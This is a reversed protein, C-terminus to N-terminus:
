LSIISHFYMYVVYPLANSVDSTININFKKSTLDLFEGFSTGIGYSQNAKLMQLSANNHGTDRFSTLFRELVEVRDRIVYNVFQNSSDNWLFQLERVNPLQNMSVNNYTATNERSQEQFSCSVSNCVAPVRTSINALGSQITTKINMKTRMSLKSQKGDDMISRFVIRPNKIAYTVTSDVGPGYLAGFMRNLQLSVRIVGTSDFRITNDGDPSVVNNLCFNPKLSMDNDNNITNGYKTLTGRLIARSIVDDATRMECINESNFMDDRNMTSSSLMKVYRPYEQINELVGQKQTETNISEIFSHGGVHSDYKINDTASLDVNAKQVRLDCEFRISNAVMKRGEFSLSFEILDFESFSAKDNEPIISHNIFSM